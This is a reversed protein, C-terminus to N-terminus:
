DEYEKVLITRESLYEIRQIQTGSSDIWFRSLHFLGLYTSQYELKM